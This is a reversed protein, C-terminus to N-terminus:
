LLYFVIMSNLYIKQLIKKIYNEYTKKLTEVTEIYAFKKKDAKLGNKIEDLIGKTYNYFKFHDKVESHPHIIMSRNSDEEEDEKNALGSAVSIIFTIVAKELSKPRTNNSIIDNM